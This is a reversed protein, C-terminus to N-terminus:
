GSNVTQSSTVSQKLNILQAPHALVAGKRGDGLGDEKAPGDQAAEYEAVDGVPIAAYWGNDTGVHDAENGTNGSGKAM